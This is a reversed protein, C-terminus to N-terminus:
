PGLQLLLLSVKGNQWLQHKNRIANRANNSTMLMSSIDISTTVIDGEFQRALMIPDDGSAPEDSAIAKANNRATDFDTPTLHVDLDVYDSALNSNREDHTVNVTFDAPM